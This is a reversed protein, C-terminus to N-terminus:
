RDPVYLLKTKNKIILIILYIFLCFIFFKMWFFDFYKKHTSIQILFDILTFGWVTGSLTQFERNIVNKFSFSLDPRQWNKFKPIIAPTNKYYNLFIEGFKEKLFKEEAFIISTYYLWFLIISILIFWWIKTYLIMGLFIFFNGLYLPNILSYIGKTNLIEAVQKSVRGSTGKPAYGAVYSRIVVGILSIIFCFFEFIEKKYFKYHSSKLAFYLIPLLIFPCFSRYKFFFDGAKELNQKIKM